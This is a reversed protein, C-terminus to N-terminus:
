TINNILEPNIADESNNKFCDDSLHLKKCKAYKVNEQNKIIYLLEDLSKRIYHIYNTFSEHPTTNCVDYFLIAAKNFDEDFEENVVNADNYTTITKNIIKIAKDNFLEYIQREYTLLYNLKLYLHIVYTDFSKREKGFLNKFFSDNQLKYFLKPRKLIDNNDVNSLLLLLRLSNFIIICDSIGLFLKFIRLRMYCFYTGPANFYNIIKHLKKIILDYTLNLSDIIKSAHENINDLNYEAVQKKLDSINSKKFFVNYLNKIDDINDLNIVNNRRSYKYFKSLFDYINEYIVKKNDTIENSTIVYFLEIVYNNMTKPILAAEIDDDAGGYQYIKKTKKHKKIRTIRKTKM